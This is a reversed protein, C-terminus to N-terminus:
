VPLPYTYFLLHFLNFAFHTVVAWWLKGTFYYVLGYGAGALTAFVVFLPGGAFHAAGFLTSTILIAIGPNLLAQLKRQIFGRFFAEETTCVCFLNIVSWIPLWAPVTVDFAMLGLPVSLLQLVLLAALTMMISLIKYDSIAKSKGMLLMVAFLVHIQDVNFYLSYPLAYASSQVGDLLLINNFGPLIHLALAITLLIFIVYAAASSVTGTLNFSLYVSLYYGALIALAPIEYLGTYWGAMGALLVGTAIM